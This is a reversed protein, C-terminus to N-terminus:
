KIKNENKNGGKHILTVLVKNWEEVVVEEEEVIQKFLHEVGKRIKEGGEKYFENPIGDPDVAKMNKLKKLCNEIKRSTIVYNQEQINNKKNNKHLKRYKNKRRSNKRNRGLIKKM